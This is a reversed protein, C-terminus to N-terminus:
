PSQLDPGQRPAGNQAERAIRGLRPDPASRLRQSIKEWHYRSVEVRLNRAWSVGGSRFVEYFQADSCRRLLLVAADEVRDSSRGRLLGDISLRVTKPDLREFSLLVPRTVPLGGHVVEARGDTCVALLFPGATKNPDANKRGTAELLRSLIDSAMSDVELKEGLLRPNALEVLELLQGDHDADVLIGYIITEERRSTRGDLYTNLLEQKRQPPETRARRRVEEQPLNRYFRRTDGRATPYTTRSVDVARKALERKAETERDTLGLIALHERILGTLESEGFIMNIFLAALGVVLAITALPLGAITTTVGSLLLRAASAASTLSTGIQVMRAGRGLLDESRSEQRTSVIAVFVGVLDGLLGFGSLFRGFWKGSTMADAGRRARVEDFHAGGSAYHTFRALDQKVFRIVVDASALLGLAASAVFAVSLAKLQGENDHFKQRSVGLVAVLSLLITLGRGGTTGAQIARLTRAHKAEGARELRDALTRAGEFDGAKKKFDDHTLTKNLTRALARRAGRERLMLLSARTLSVGWTTQWFATVSADFGSIDEPRDPSQIRARAADSAEHAVLLFSLAGYIAEERESRSLTRIVREPARAAEAILFAVGTDRAVAPAVTSIAMLERGLAEARANDEQPLSAAFGPSLVFKAHELAQQEWTNGFVETRAEDLSAELAEVVEADSFLKEALRELAPKRMLLVDHAHADFDRLTKKGSRGLSDSRLLDLLGLTLGLRHLTSGHGAAQIRASFKEQVLTDLADLAHKPIRRVDETVRGRAQRQRAAGRWLLEGYRVRHSGRVDIGLVSSKEEAPAAPFVEPPSAM